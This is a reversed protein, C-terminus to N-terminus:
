VSIYGESDGFSSKSVTMKAQASYSYCGDYPGLGYNKAIVM